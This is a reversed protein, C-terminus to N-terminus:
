HEETQELGLGAARFTEPTASIKVGSATHELKVERSALRITKGGLVVTVFGNEDESITSVTITANRAGARYLPAEQVTSDPPRSLITKQSAHILVAGDTREITVQDTPLRVIRDASVFQM